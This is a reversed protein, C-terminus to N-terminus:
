LYKSKSSVILKLSESESPSPFWEFFELDGFEGKLFFYFDEGM